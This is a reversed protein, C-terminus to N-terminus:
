FDNKNMFGNVIALTAGAGILTGFAASVMRYGNLTTREDFDDTLEPTLAGYPINVLTYATNVACYAITAWVFLITQDKIGPNTFM